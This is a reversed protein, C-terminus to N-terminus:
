TLLPKIRVLPTKTEKVLHANTHLKMKNENNQIATDEVGSGSKSLDQIVM